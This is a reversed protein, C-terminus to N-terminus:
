SIIKFWDQGRGARGCTSPQQLTFFSGARRPSSHAAADGAQDKGRCCGYDSPQEHLKEGGTAKGLVTLLFSIFGKTIKGGM